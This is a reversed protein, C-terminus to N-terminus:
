PELEASHLSLLTHNQTDSALPAQHREELNVPHPAPLPLQARTPGKSLIAM